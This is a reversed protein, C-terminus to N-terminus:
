QWFNCRVTTKWSLLHLVAKGFMVLFHRVSEFSRHVRYYSCKWAVTSYKKILHLCRLHWILHEYYKRGTINLDILGRNLSDSWIGSKVQFAEKKPPPSSDISTRNSKVHSGDRPSTEVSAIPTPDTHSTLNDFNSMPIAAFPDFMNSNTDPKISKEEPQPVPDPAAFFDMTTAVSPSPQSSFLDVSASNAPAAQPAFLDVDTQMFSDFEILILDNSKRCYRYIENTTTILM